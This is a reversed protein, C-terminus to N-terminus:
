ADPSLEVVRLAVRGRHHRAEQALLNRLDGQASMRLYSTLDSRRRDYASPNLILAMVARDAADQCLDPAVKRNHQELWARLPPLFFNAFDPPATAVGACLHQYLRLGEDDSPAPQPAPISM